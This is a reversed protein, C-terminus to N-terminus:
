SAKRQITDLNRMAENLDALPAWDRLVAAQLRAVRIKAACLATEHDVAQEFKRKTM